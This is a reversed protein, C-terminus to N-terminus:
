VRGRGCRKGSHYRGVVALVAVPGQVERLLLAVSSENVLLSAHDAGPFVLQVPTGQRPTPRSSASLYICRVSALVVIVGCLVLLMARMDQLLQFERRAARSWMESWLELHDRGSTINRNRSLLM